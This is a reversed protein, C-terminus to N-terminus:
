GGIRGPKQHLVIARQAAGESGDRALARLGPPIRGPFAQFIRKSTEFHHIQPTLNEM